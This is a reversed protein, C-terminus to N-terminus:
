APSSFSSIAEAATRHLHLMKNLHTVRLIYQLNSSLEALRLEGGAEALRKHVRVLQGLSQSGLQQIDSFTILLRPAKQESVLREVEGWLETPDHHRMLFDAWDIRTVSPPNNPTMAAM